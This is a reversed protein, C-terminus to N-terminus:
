LLKLAGTILDCEEDSAPGVACSTATPVGHFETHGSDTIFSCPLGAAVAAAYVNILEEESDARVCIKKFSNALWEVVRPDDIFDLVAAVSAHAGQSVMKGKRMNLDNRLVLVQKM